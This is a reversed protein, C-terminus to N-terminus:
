HVSVAQLKERQVRGVARRDHQGVAPFGRDSVGPAVFKLRDANVSCASPQTVSRAAVINKSVDAM